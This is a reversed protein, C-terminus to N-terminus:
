ASGLKVDALIGELKLVVGNYFEEQFDRDDLGRPDFSEMCRVVIDRYAPSILPVRQELMSRAQMYDQIFAHDDLDFATDRLQTLSQGLIIELLLMGLAFLTPNNPSLRRKTGDPADNVYRTPSEPFTKSLFPRHYPSTKDRDFFHVTDRTLTGPLWPTKSLQLVSSAVVFALSLKDRLFLLPRAGKRGKLVDELTVISWDDSDSGVGSPQVPFQRHSSEKDILYGYSAPKEEYPTNLAMCLNVTCEEPETTEPPTKILALDTVVKTVSALSIKLDRMAETPPQLQNVPSSGLVSSFAVRKTHKAKIAVNQTADPKPAPVCLTKIDVEDWVKKTESVGVVESSIALKFRAAQAIEDDDCDHELDPVGMTMDFSVDHSHTCALSSCLGRHISTSLDRLVTFVKCRSRKRRGPELKVCQVSLTYLSTVGRSITELDEQYEKREM